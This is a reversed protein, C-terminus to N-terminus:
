AGYRRIRRNYEDIIGTVDTKTMDPWYKDLFLLESYAVRWLMFNSLRREGSTRVVMDVPPIEPVFLRSRIAELSVDEEKLGDRLCAKVAEAIEQQGGYNFCVGLTRGEFEQTRTEANDIAELMKGTLGERSGLFRIRVRRKILQNLDLSFVRMALKMLHNVEKEERQWNETSFAYLSIYQVGADFTAEVVEKLANYGALHGDLTPLSHKRAWRRNGDLIYGIHVPPKAAESM